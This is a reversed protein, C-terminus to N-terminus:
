LQPYERVKEVHRTITPVFARTDIPKSLYEDCGADLAKQEGGEMAYATLAVIPINQMTPDAKLLRTFTLGDIGPLQIDMVILAPRLTVLLKQAEEAGGATHVTYGARKLLQEILQLNIPNDEVVLITENSM